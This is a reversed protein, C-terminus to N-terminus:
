WDMGATASYGPSGYADTISNGATIIEYRGDYSSSSSSGSSAPPSSPLEYDCALYETNTRVKYVSCYVNARAIDLQANETDGTYYYSYARFSYCRFMSDLDPDEYTSETNIFKTCDSIANEHNDLVYNIIGRLYYPPSYEPDIEIAKNIDDLMKELEVDSVDFISTTPYSYSSYFNDEATQFYAWAYVYNHKPNSFIEPHSSIGEEYIETAWKFQDNAYRAHGEMNLAYGVDPNEEHFGASVFDNAAGSYDGNKYRSMGRYMYFDFSNWTADHEWMLTDETEDARNLDEIAGDYDELWYKSTGRMYYADSYGPDVNIARTQFEVAKDYDELAWYAFGKSFYGETSRPNIDLNQDYYSIANQYDEQYFYVDGIMQYAM